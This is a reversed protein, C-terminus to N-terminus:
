GPPLLHARAEIIAVVLLALLAAVDVRVVKQVASSGGGEVHALMLFSVVSVLGMGLALLRWPRYLAGAVMVGGILAFLVARHRLLISLSPGEVTVGYLAQLREGGLVGIVPLLHILGVAILLVVSLLALPEAWNRWRRGAM